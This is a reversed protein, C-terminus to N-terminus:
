VNSQNRSRGQRRRKSRATAPSKGDGVPEEEVQALSGQSEKQLNAILVHILRMLEGIERRSMGQSAQAFVARRVPLMMAFTKHGKRTLHVETTRGDDPRSRRELLGDEQMTELLRSLASREIFTYEALDNITAGDKDALISLTRWRAVLSKGGGLDKVFKANALKELVGIWYFVSSQFSQEEIQM